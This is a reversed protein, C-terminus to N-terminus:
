SASQKYYYKRRRLQCVDPFLNAEGKVSVLCGTGVGQRNEFLPRILTRAPGLSQIVVHCVSISEEVVGRYEQTRRFRKDTHTDRV